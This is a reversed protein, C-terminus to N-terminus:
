QDTESLNQQASAYEPQDVSAEQNFTVGGAMNVVSIPAPQCHSFGDAGYGHYYGNSFGQRNFPNSRATLNTMISVFPPVPIAVAVGTAMQGHTPEPAPRIQGFTRPSAHANTKTM